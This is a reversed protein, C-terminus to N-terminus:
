EKRESCDVGGLECRGCERDSPAYPAPEDAVMGRFEDDVADGRIWSETGDVILERGDM